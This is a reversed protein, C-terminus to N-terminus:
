AVATAYVVYNDRYHGSARDFAGGCTILLEPAQDGFGFVETPLDNKPYQGAGTVVFTRFEGAPDSVIIEDGAVVEDLRAFVAPGEFSQEAATWRGRDEVARETAGVHDGGPPDALRQQDVDGTRVGHRNPNPSRPRNSM